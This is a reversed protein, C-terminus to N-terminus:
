ARRRRFALFCTMLGWVVATGLCVWAFVTGVKAESRLKAVLAEQSPEHSLLFLEGGRMTGGRQEGVLTVPGGVKFGEWEAGSSSKVGLGPPKLFKLEATEVTLTGVRFREVREEVDQRDAQTKGQSGKFYLCALDTSPVVVASDVNAVVSELCILGEASSAEELSVVAASEVREAQGAFDEQMFIGFSGCCFSVAAVLGTLLAFTQCGGGGQAGPTPAQMGHSAVKLDKLRHEAPLLVELQEWLADRIQEASASPGLADVAKSYAAEIQAKVQGAEVGVPVSLEAQGNAQAGEHTSASWELVLTSSGGLSSGCYECRVVGDDNNAGCGPCVSV